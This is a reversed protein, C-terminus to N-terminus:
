ASLLKYLYFCREDPTPSIEKLLRYGLAEYLAIAPQEICYSSSAM